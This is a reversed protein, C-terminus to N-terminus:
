FNNRQKTIYKTQDSMLYFYDVTAIKFIYHKSVLICVSQYAVDTIYSLVIKEVHKNQIETNDSYM